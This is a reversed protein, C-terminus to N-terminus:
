IYDNNQGEWFSIKANIKLIQGKCKSWKLTGTISHPPLPVSRDNYSCQVTKFSFLDINHGGWNLKLIQRTAICKSWKQTRLICHPLQVSCNDYSCQVCIVAKLICFLCSCLRIKYNSIVTVVAQRYTLYDALIQHCSVIALKLQRFRCDVAVIDITCFSENQLKKCLNTM